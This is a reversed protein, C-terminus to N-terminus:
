DVLENTKATEHREKTRQKRVILRKAKRHVPIRTRTFQKPLSGEFYIDRYCSTERKIMM